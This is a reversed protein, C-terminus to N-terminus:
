ARTLLNFLPEVFLNPSYTTSAYAGTIPALGITTAEITFSPNRYQGLCSSTHISQRNNKEGLILRNTAFQGVNTFANTAPSIRPSVQRAEIKSMM